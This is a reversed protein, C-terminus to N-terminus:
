SGQCMQEQNRSCSFHCCGWCLRPPAGCIPIIRDRHTQPSSLLTRDLWCCHPMWEGGVWGKRWPWQWSVRCKEHQNYTFSQCPANQTDSLCMIIRSFLTRITELNSTITLLGQSKPLPPSKSCVCKAKFSCEMFPSSHCVSIM